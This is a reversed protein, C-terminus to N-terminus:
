WKSAELYGWNTKQEKNVSGHDAELHGYSKENETKRGTNGFLALVKKESLTTRTEKLLHGLWIWRTEQRNKNDHGRAPVQQFSGSKPHDKALINMPKPDKRSVKYSIDVAQKPVQERIWVFPYTYFAAKTFFFKTKDQMHNFKIEMWLHKERRSNDRNLIMIQEM